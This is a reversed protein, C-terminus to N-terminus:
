WEGADVGEIEEETGNSQSATLFLPGAGYAVGLLPLFDVRSLVTLPAVGARSRFAKM